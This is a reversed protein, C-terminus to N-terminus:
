FASKVGISSLEQAKTLSVLSLTALANGFTAEPAIQTHLSVTNIFSWFLAPMDNENLKECPASKDFLIPTQWANINNTNKDVDINEHCAINNENATLEQITNGDIVDKISENAMRTIEECSLGGYLGIGRKNFDEILEQCITIADASKQIGSVITDRTKKNDCDVSNINNRFDSIDTNNM